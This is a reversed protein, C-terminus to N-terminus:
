KEKQQQDNRKKVLGTSVYTVPYASILLQHAFADGGKWNPHMHFYFRMRLSLRRQAPVFGNGDV